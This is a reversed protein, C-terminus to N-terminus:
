RRLRAKLEYEGQRIEEQRGFRQHMRRLCNLALAAVKNRLETEGAEKM